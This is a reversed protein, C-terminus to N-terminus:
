SKREFVKNADGRKNINYFSNLIEYTEEKKCEGHVINGCRSISDKIKFFKDNLSKKILNIDEKNNIIYDIVIYFNKLSSDNELSKNEIFNIYEKKIKEIKPNKENVNQINLIHNFLNQKKSQIIIQINFNCTKLFLKYSNLIAKKELESKLDFNVPLVKIIKVFKDKYKIIGDDFIM